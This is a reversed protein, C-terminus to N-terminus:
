KNAVRTKIVNEGELMLINEVLIKKKKLNKRVLEDNANSELDLSSTGGRL